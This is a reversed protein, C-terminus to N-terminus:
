AHKINNLYRILEQIM